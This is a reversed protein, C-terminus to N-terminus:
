SLKYSFHRRFKKLLSLVIHIIQPDNSYLSDMLFYTRRELHPHTRKFIKFLYSFEIEKEQDKHFGYFLM